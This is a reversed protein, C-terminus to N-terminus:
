LDKLIEKRKEEYEERTVLSRDYLSQLELLRGETDGAPRAAPEGEAVDEMIGVISRDLGTEVDYGVRHAMGNKRVLEVIGIVVFSVAVLTWVVGFLGAMPIIQTVGIIVFFISVILFPLTALRQFARTEKTPQSQVTIRGRKRNM